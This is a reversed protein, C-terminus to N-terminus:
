SISCGSRVLIYSLRRRRYTGTFVCNRGCLGRWLAAFLPMIDMKWRLVVYIKRWIYIM